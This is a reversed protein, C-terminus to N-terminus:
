LSFNKAGCKNLGVHVHNTHPNVGHYAQLGNSQTWIKRNFIVEQIGNKCAISILHQFISEGRSREVYHDIARGEGHLSLNKGGRVPRCEYIEQRSGYNRKLYAALKTAGPTPGGSCKSAYDYSCGCGLSSPKTGGSSTGSTGYIAAWTNRGVIGDVELGRQRQYAMVAAKTNKGFIGDATTGVARQVAKVCEGRSGQQLTDSCRAFSIGTPYLSLLSIIVIVWM